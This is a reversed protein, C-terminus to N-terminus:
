SRAAFGDLSNAGIDLTLHHLCHTFPKGKVAVETYDVWREVDTPRLCDSLVHTDAKPNSARLV